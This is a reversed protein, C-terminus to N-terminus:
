EWYAHMPTIGEVVQAQIEDIEESVDKKIGIPQFVREGKMAQFIVDLPELVTLNKGDQKTVLKSFYKFLEKNAGANAKRMDQAKYTATPVRELWEAILAKSAVTGSIIFHLHPHYKDTKLNHTCELKRLGVLQWSQHGRQHRKKFKGQIAQVTTIMARITRKLEAAPVNPLTLTVFRKDPLESLPKEYGNILQATRIRNCVTCWRHGCYSATLTSDKQELTGACRWTKWYSKELPSKLKALRVAVASSYFKAKARKKYAAFPASDTAKGAKAGTANGVNTGLQELKDLFVRKKAEDGPAFFGSSNGM